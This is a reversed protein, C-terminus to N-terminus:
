DFDCDSEETCGEDGQTYGECNSVAVCGELVIMIEESEPAIYKEERKM